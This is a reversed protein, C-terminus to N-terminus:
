EVVWKIQNGAGEIEIFYIGSTLAKLVIRNEGKEIHHSSVKSGV